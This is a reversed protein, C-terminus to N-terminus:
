PCPHARRRFSGSTGRAIISIIARKKIKDLLIDIDPYKLEFQKEIEQFPITLSDANFVKLKTQGQGSCGCSTLWLITSTIVTIIVLLRFLSVKTVSM